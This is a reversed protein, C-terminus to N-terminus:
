VSGAPVGAPVNVITAANLPDAFTVALLSEDCVNVIRGAGVVVSAVGDGSMNLSAGCLTGSLAVTRPPPPDTGVPDTVNVTWVADEATTPAGTLPGIEFPTAAAVKVRGALVGVCTKVIVAAYASPDGTLKAGLV